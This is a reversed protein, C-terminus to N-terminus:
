GGYQAFAVYHGGRATAGTHCIVSHLRFSIGAVTLEDEPIVAHTVKTGDAAWRLLHILLVDPVTTMDTHRTPLGQSTCSADPCVWEDYTVPTPQFFAALAERVSTYIAGTRSNALPLHLM